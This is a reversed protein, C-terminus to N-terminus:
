GTNEVKMNSNNGKDDGRILKYLAKRKFIM